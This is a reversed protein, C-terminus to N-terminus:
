ASRAADGALYGLLLERNRRTWSVEDGPIGRAVQLVVDGAYGVARMSEFVAPLDADGTGLPVTGGGKVRDKLHISGVRDGYAAFEERPDYALSASNGIDYNVKVHGSPVRALLEAFRDPGLSAELHLEVGLEEARRAARGLTAVVQEFDLDTDIRSADVFPIVIREIALRKCREMLWVLTGFREELEANSTRVLPWDMFYDACVSVVGVGHLASLELISNIGDDTAIPNVDAGFQDYIWEITDIGAQAAYGFEDAWNMRPFCQFRGELPPVLRGQMIGIRTM